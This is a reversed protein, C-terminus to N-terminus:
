HPTKAADCGVAALVAFLVDESITAQTVYQRGSSKVVRLTITVEGNKSREFFMDTKHEPMAAGAVDEIMIKLSGLGGVNVLQDEVAM